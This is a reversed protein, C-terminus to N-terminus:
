TVFPNEIRLRGIHQGHHLDESYLLDCGAELAAAIIMSDYFSYGSSQKLELASKLLDISPFVQCLPTLTEELYAAAEPFTMPVAFKRLCVNLFEQAVQLSICGSGSRLAENMLERARERKAPAVPDFAYALINTDLFFSASM